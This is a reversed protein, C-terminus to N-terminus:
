FVSLSGQLSLWYLIQRCHLLAPNLGQTLFIGQLLSHSGVWTNKGPFDWPCFSSPLSCDMPDCSDSVVLCFGGGGGGLYLFSPFHAVKWKLFRVVSNWGSTWPRDWCHHRNTTHARSIVHHCQFKAEITKKWFFSLELRIIIIPHCWWSWPCSNSCVTPSLLPCPLRAHQLGHLQLTDPM